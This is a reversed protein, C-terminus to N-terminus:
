LRQPGFSPAYTCIFLLIDNFNRRDRTVNTCAVCLTSSKPSSKKCRRISLPSRCNTNFTQFSIWSHVLHDHLNFPPTHFTPTKSHRKIESVIRSLAISVISSFYFSTHSRNLPAMRHGHTVGLASKLTVVNTMNWYSSTPRDSVVDSWRRIHYPAPAASGYSSPPPWSGGVKRPLPPRPSIIQCYNMHM